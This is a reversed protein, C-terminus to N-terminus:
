RARRGKSVTKFVIVQCVDLAGQLPGIFRNLHELFFPAFYSFVCFCSHNNGLSPAFGGEFCVKQSRLSGKRLVSIARADAYITTLAYLLMLSFAAIHEGTSPQRYPLPPWNPIGNLPM